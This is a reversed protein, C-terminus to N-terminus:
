KTFELIKSAEIETINSFKFWAFYRKTRYYKPTYKASDPAEIPETDSVVIDHCVASYLKKQGSDMLYIILGSKRAISALDLFEKPPKEQQKKWWGWWVFKVKCRNKCIAEKHRAITGGDDTILDRFRLICTTIDM